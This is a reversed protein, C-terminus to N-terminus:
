LHQGNFPFPLEIGDQCALFFTDMGVARKIVFPGKWLPDFKDHIGKPEYRKNRWLVWDRIKFKREKAKKDFVRPFDKDVEDLPPEDKRRETTPL